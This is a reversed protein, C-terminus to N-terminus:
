DEDELIEEVTVVIDSHKLRKYLAMDLDDRDMGEQFGEIVMRVNYTQYM